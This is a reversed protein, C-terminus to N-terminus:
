TLVKRHWRLAASGKPCPYFCSQMTVCWPLVHFCAVGDFWSHYANVSNPVCQVPLDEANSALDSYILPKLSGSKRLRCSAAAKSLLRCQFLKAGLGCVRCERIPQCLSRRTCGLAFCDLIGALNFLRLCFGTIGFSRLLRFKLGRQLRLANLGLACLPFALQFGFPFHRPVSSISGAFRARFAQLWEGDSDVLQRKLESRMALRRFNAVRGGGLMAFYGEAARSTGLIARSSRNVSLRQVPM